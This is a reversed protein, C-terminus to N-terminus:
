SGGPRERTVGLRGGRRWWGGGGGRRCGGGDDSSATGRRISAAPLMGRNTEEGFSGFGEGAARGRKKRRGRHAPRAVGQMPAEQEEERPHAGRCTQKKREARTKGAATPRGRRSRPQQKPRLKQQGEDRTRARRAEWLKSAHVPQGGGTDERAV